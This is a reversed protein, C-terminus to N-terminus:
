LSSGSDDGLMAERALTVPLGLTLFEDHFERLSFTRGEQLMMEEYDKRLKLIQMRGLAYYLYTPNYTGRQTERLAPFPAFFAIEEFRQSADEVTEGYVHMSLGAHWRAHRQLARRLQGLRIAPDGDGLGEDIMMQETYHAWGEVLSAPTFVKRIATPIRSEYLLQVFHGPMVEHITVGLLGPYNFYSLHQAKQEESWNPDVNTINYYAERANTEFPGPTSMSAFGMRAYEPTPRVVPLGDSPLTVIDNDIIFQRTTTVYERAIPILESPTPFNGTIEAMVEEVPLDPDIRAAERRVWDKYYAIAEENVDRLQDATLDVHEEYRLKREFLDRGLRFDGDARPALDSELWSVFESLSQISNKREMQFDDLLGSPMDALGQDALAAPLDKDLFSVVGRGNRTAIEVWLPPVDDLNDKATELLAPIDKMRAVMSSIRDELPAFDRDSLSSISSAATSVYKMPNRKWDCVEELELLRARIAYELIRHDFYREGTLRERDIESLRDLWGRFEAARSAVGQESWDPLKGDYTHIGLNTATIPRAEYYWDLFSTALDDFEASSKAEMEDPGQQCAALVPVILFLYHLRIKRHRTRILKFSM